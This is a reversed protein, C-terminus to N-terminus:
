NSIQATQKKYPGRLSPVKAAEADMAQVIEEWSWLRETLKAAMAPTVRLTLSAKGL